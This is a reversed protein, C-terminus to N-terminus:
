FFQRRRKQGDNNGIVFAVPQDKLFEKLEKVLSYSRDDTRYKTHWDIGPVFATESWIVIDPNEELAENSLKKLIGLSKEYTPYGGRWPDINQQVLAVKWTDAESLDTRAALGYAVASFFIIVYAGIAYKQDRLISYIERMGNRLANGILASPFVVLLTVAWIGALGAVRVLPLFPYQTYGLVGYSYGLFGQTRLYEYGIWAIAQLLFGYKPFFKDILKLVPMLLLFYGAYITPVIFIALPHWTVLWFNYLAYCAFGYFAGYLFIGFWGSKHVVVFVPVIAFYALPFLGWKFLFNPHSFAFLFASLLLLSLELAIRRGLSPSREKPGSFTALRKLM